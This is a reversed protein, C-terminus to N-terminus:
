TNSIIHTITEVHKSLLYVIFFLTPKRTLSMGLDLCKRFRCHPCKGRGPGEIKCNGGMPCVVNLDAYMDSNGGGMSISKLPDEIGLSDGCASAKDKKIRNTLHRTFFKKCAECVYARHHFGVSPQGCVQCAQDESRRQYQTFASEPTMEETFFASSATEVRQSSNPAKASNVADSASAESPDTSVWSSDSSLFGNVKLSESDRINSKSRESSPIASSDVLDEGFFMVHDQDFHDAVGQDRALSLTEFSHYAPIRVGEVEDIM